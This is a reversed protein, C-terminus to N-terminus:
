LWQIKCCPVKNVSALKCIVRIFKESITHM